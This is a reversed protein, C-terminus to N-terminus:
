HLAHINLDYDITLSNVVLLALTAFITNVAFKM